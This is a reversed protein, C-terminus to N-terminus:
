VGLFCLPPEKYKLYNKKHIKTPDKCNTLFRTLEELSCDKPAMNVWAQDGISRYHGATDSQKLVHTKYEISPPLWVHIQRCYKRGKLVLKNSLESYLVKCVIFPLNKNFSKRLLISHLFCYKIQCNSYNRPLSFRVCWVPSHDIIQM